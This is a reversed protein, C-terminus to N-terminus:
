AEPKPILHPLLRHAVHRSIVATFTGWILMNKDSPPLLAFPGFQLSGPVVPDALLWLVPNVILSVGYAAWWVGMLVGRRIVFVVAILLIVLGPLHEILYLLLLEAPGPIPKALIALAAVAALISVASIAAMSVLAIRIAQPLSITM